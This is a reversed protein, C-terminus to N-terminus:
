SHCRRIFEEVLSPDKRGPISEVGSSVDVGYPSLGIVRDLNTLDLGGAIIIVACVDLPIAGYDYGAGTGPEGKEFVLGKACRAFEMAESRIPHVVRLVKVDIEDLEEIQNVSLNYAQLLDAGTKDIMSSAEDASRPDGVLVKKTFPGITSMIASISDLSMSRSRGPFHVLGLADAGLRECMQADEQNTIGCIKVKM